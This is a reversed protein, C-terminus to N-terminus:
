QRAVQVWDGMANKSDRHKAGTDWDVCNRIDNSGNFECVERRLIKGDMDQIVVALGKRGDNLLYELGLVCSKLEPQCLRSSAIKGDNQDASLKGVKDIFENWSAIGTSVQQVASTNAAVRRTQEPIGALSVGMAKLDQADLWGIQKSPTSVMRNTIMDPVGLEDQAFKAMAKTAAVSASSEQGYKDSSRHVGVKAGEAVFRQRGAAFILFCASACVAKPGVSVSIGSRKVANALKMGEVLRGGGSNVQLIEVTKGSANARGIQETLRDTDGLDITGSLQIIIGGDNGPITKITGSYASAGACVAIAVGLFVSGASWKM